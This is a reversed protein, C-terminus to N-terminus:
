RLVVIYTSLWGWYCFYLRAVILFLLSNVQRGQKSIPVEKKEFVIDRSNLIALRSSSEDAQIRKISDPWPARETPEDLGAGFDNLDTATDSKKQQSHHHCRRFAAFM